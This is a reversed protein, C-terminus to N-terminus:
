ETLDADIRSKDFNRIVKHWAEEKVTEIKESIVQNRNEIYGPVCACIKATIMGVNRNILRMVELSLKDSIEKNISFTIM